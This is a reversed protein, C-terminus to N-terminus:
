LYVKNEEPSPQFSFKKRCFDVLKQVSSEFLMERFGSARAKEKLWSFGESLAIATRKESVRPDFQVDVRMARSIRLHFVVGEDDYFTIQETLPEVWKSADLHRHHTDVAMCDALHKLDDENSKRLNM